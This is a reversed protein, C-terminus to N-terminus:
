QTQADTQGGKHLEEVSDMVGLLKGQRFIFVVRKNYSFATLKGYEQMDLERTESPEGLMENMQAQTFSADFETPRYEPFTTAQVDALNEADQFVGDEFYLRRPQFASQLVPDTGSYTYYEWVETRLGADDFAVAFIDPYGFDDVFKKQDASLAVREVIEREPPEVLGGTLTSLLGAGPAAPADAPQGTTRARNLVLYGGVLTGALLALTGLAGLAIGGMARASGGKIARLGCWLAFPGLIWLVISGIGLGLAWNALGDPGAAPAQGAPAVAPPPSAGVPAVTVAPPAQPEPPPQPGPPAQPEPPPQDPAAQVPRGCKMCFSYSPDLQTGCHICYRVDGPTEEAGIAAGCDPCFKPPAARDYQSGCKPCKADPM